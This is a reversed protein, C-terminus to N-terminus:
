KGCHRDILISLLGVADKDNYQDFFGHIARLSDDDRFVWNVICDAKVRNGQVAYLHSAMDAAGAIFGSRECPQMKDMVDGADIACAPTAGFFLFPAALVVCAILTLAAAKKRGIRDLQLKELPLKDFLM